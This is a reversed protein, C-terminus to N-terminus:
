LSATQFSPFGSFCLADEGGDRSEHKLGQRTDAGNRASYCVSTRAIYGVSAPKAGLISQPLRLLHSVNSRRHFFAQAKWRYRQEM